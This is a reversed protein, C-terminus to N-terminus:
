NFIQIMYIQTAVASSKTIRLDFFGCVNIYTRYKICSTYCKNRVVDCGYNNVTTPM